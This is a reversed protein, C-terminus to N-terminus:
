VQSPEILGERKYRSYRAFVEAYQESKVTELPAEEIIAVAHVITNYTKGTGPAGFLITNKEHKERHAPAQPVVEAPGNQAHNATDAASDKEANANTWAELSIEPFTRGSAESEVLTHLKGLYELYGAGNGKGTDVALGFTKRIHALSNKDLPMFLDPRIWFLGMSISAAGNGAAGVAHDFLDVFLEDLDAFVECQLVYITLDWIEDVGSFSSQMNNLIPIGGFQTPADMSLGLKAALKSALITRNEASTGRNFAGIITFPDVNYKKPGWWERNEFHLYNLLPEVESLEQMLAFLEDRRDGYELVKEALARYFPVWAFPDDQADLTTVVEQGDRFRSSDLTDSVM